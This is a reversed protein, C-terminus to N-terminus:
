RNLDEDTYIDNSEVTMIPNTKRIGISNPCVIPLYSNTPWTTTVRDSMLRFQSEGFFNTQGIGTRGGKIDTKKTGNNTYDGGRKRM